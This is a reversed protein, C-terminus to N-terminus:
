GLEFRITQQVWGKVAQGRYQGPRFRWGRAASMASAEFIRHSSGVIVVRAVAGHQDVLLKVTVFGRLGQARARAPFSPPTQQVPSPPVDMSSDDMIVDGLAQQSDILSSALDAFGSPEGSPLGVDIGALNSSLAPPPARRVQRKVAKPRQKKRVVKRTKTKKRKKVSLQAVFGRKSKKKKAPPKNMGMVIAFVGASVLVMIALAAGHKGIRAIFASRM